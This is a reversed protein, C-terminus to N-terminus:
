GLSQFLATSKHVLKGRLQIASELDSQLYPINSSSYDPSASGNALRIILNQGDKHIRLRLHGSCLWHEFTVLNRM